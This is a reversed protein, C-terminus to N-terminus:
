CTLKYATYLAINVPCLPPQSNSPLTPTSRSQIIPTHANSDRSPQQYVSCNHSFVGVCERTFCTGLFVRVHNVDYIKARGDPARGARSSWTPRSPTRHPRSPGLPANACPPGRGRTRPGTGRAESGGSLTREVRGHRFFSCGLEASEVGDGSEDRM